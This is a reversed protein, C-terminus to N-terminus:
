KRGEIEEFVKLTEPSLAPPVGIENIQFPNGLVDLGKRRYLSSNSRIYESLKEFTPGPDGNQLHKELTVQEIAADVVRLEYQALKIIEPTVDEKKVIELDIASSDTKEANMDPLMNMEEFVKLTEDNLAAPVGVENIQFPNGLVDLGKRAYISSAPAMYVSVQDFTPGPSGKKMHKQLAWQDITAQLMGLERDALRVIEPTVDEKKVPEAGKGGATKLLDATENHGAAEAMMLATSGFRTGRANVDAGAKLLIRVTEVKGEKAALILATRGYDKDRVEVDAGAKLLREVADARGNRAAYMLATYGDRSVANVDAGKELLIDVFRGSGWRSANMLLTDGTDSTVAHIDAGRDILLRAIEGEGRMGHLVLPVGDIAKVDPDAGKDLLSKVMNTSGSTVAYALATMLRKDRTKVDAGSALLREAVQEHGNALASMLPTLGYLDTGGVEAGAKLLLEVVQDDGKSSAIILGTQGRRDKADVDAGKEIMGRLGSVDGKEIFQFWDERWDREEAFSVAVFTATLVVFLLGGFIRVGQKAVGIHM